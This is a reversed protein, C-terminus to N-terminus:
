GHGTLAMIVGLITALASVASILGVIFAKTSVQKEAAEKAAKALAASVAAAMEQKAVVQALGEKVATLEAAFAEQAKASRDMSGNLLKFHKDHGDLRGDVVQARRGRAEALELAKEEREQATEMEPM